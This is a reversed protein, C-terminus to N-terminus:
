RFEHAEGEKVRGIYILTVVGQLILLGAWVMEPTIWATTETRFMLFTRVFVLIMIWSTVTLTKQLNIM